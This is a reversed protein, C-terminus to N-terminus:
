SLFFQVRRSIVREVKRYAYVCGIACLSVIFPEATALYRQQGSIAMATISVVILPVILPFSRNKTKRLAVVGLFVFPLMAWFSWLFAFNASLMWGEVTNFHAQEFPEYFDWIRGLRAAMVLPLESLHSRMYSFAYGRLLADSESENTPLLIGSYCNINWYGMEPPHYVVFCNANALTVGLQTSIVEFKPFVLMNRIAWPALTATGVLAAIAVMFIKRRFKKVRVFVIYPILFVYVLLQEPHALAIFAIFVSTLGLNLYNSKALYKYAFYISLVICVQATPESLGQGDFVLLGPYFAGLVMALIAAAKGAVLDVLFGILCVVLAGLVVNIMVQENATNLGLLDGIALIIPWLPPHLASPEGTFPNVPWHLSAINAAYAHYILYDGNIQQNWKFSKVYWFRFLFAIITIFLAGLKFEVESSLKWIKAKALERDKLLGFYPSPSILTETM